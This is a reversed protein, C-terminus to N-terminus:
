SVMILQVRALHFILGDNVSTEGGIALHLSGGGSRTSPRYVGLAVPYPVTRSGPGVSTYRASSAKDTTRSRASVRARWRPKGSASTLRWTM